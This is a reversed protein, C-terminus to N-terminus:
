LFMYTTPSHIVIIEGCKNRLDEYNLKSTYFEDVDTRNPQFDFNCSVTIVKPIKTNKPLSNIWRLLAMAGRAHAIFVTEGVNLYLNNFVTFWDTLKSDDEPPFTPVRCDYGM